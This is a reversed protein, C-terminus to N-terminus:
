MASCSYGSASREKSRPSRRLPPWFASASVPSASASTSVSSDSSLPRAPRSMSRASASAGSEPLASNKPPATAARRPSKASARARKTFSRPISGGGFTRGSMSCCIVAMSPWSPPPTAGALAADAGGCHVGRGQKNDPAVRRVGTRRERHLTQLAAERLDDGEGGGVGHNGTTGERGALAHLHHRPNRAGPIGHAGAAIGQPLHGVLHAPIPEHAQDDIVPHGLFDM